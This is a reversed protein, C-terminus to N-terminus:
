VLGLYLRILESEPLDSGVDQIAAQVGTATLSLWLDVVTDQISSIQKYEIGLVFGPAHDIASSILSLLVRVLICSRLIVLLHPYLPLM